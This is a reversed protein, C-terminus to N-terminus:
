EDKEGLKWIKDFEDLWGFSGTSRDYVGIRGTKENVILRSLAMNYGNYIWYSYNDEFLDLCIEFPMELKELYEQILDITYVDFDTPHNTTDGYFLGNNIMMAGILTYTDRRNM